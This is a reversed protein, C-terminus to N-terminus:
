KMFGQVLQAIQDAATDLAFHGGDVIHIEAKPVDRRYSEPESPDFSSEYKGWIVLLRPQKERMWADWKPYSEVNTRYDYFLDVQIEGQGPEHMAVVTYEVGGVTTTYYLKRISGLDGLQPIWQLLAPLPNGDLHKIGFEKPFKRNAKETYNWYPLSFRDDETHLRLIHPPRRPKASLAALPKRTEEDPLVKLAVFRGLKVDEAKYVVGMGGGGLKEVIRYHSITQGILSDTAPVHLV